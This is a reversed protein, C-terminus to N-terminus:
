KRRGTYTKQYVVISLVEESTFTHHESVADPVRKFQKGSNRWLM